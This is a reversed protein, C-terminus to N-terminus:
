GGFFGPIEWFGWVSPFRGQFVPSESLLCSFPTPRPPGSNERHSCPTKQPLPDGLGELLQGKLRRRRGARFLPAARLPRAPARGRRQRRRDPSCLRAPPQRPSVKRTAPRAPLARGAGSASCAATPGARNKQSEASVEGVRRLRGIPQPTRGRILMRGSRSRKPPPRHWPAPGHGATVPLPTHAM